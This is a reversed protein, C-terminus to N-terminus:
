VNFFDEEDKQDKNYLDSITKYMDDKLAYHVADWNAIDSQKVEDNYQKNM